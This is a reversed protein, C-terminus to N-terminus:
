SSSSPAEVYICHRFSVSPPAVAPVAALPDDLPAPPRPTPSSFPPSPLFPRNTAGCPTYYTTGLSALLYPRDIGQYPPQLALSAIAINSHPARAAHPPHHRTGLYSFILGKTACVALWIMSRDSSMACRKKESSRPKTSTRPYQCSLVFFSQSRLQDGVWVPNYFNNNTVARISQM